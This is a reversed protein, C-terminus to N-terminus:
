VQCLFGKLYESEPIHPVIPHDFSQGLSELIRVDRGSDNVAWSLTRKFTERDMANSCSFTALFGGPRLLKLGLLNIDKYAKTANELHAKTPALKPPDLIIVDFTEGKDRFQRLLSFANDKLFRTNGSVVNNIELNKRALALAHESSDVLTLSRPTKSLANVSFGGSYCFCDLWDLGGPVLEAVKKRNDRQDLFFGTKQGAALSIVFRRSNETIFIEDPASSGALVGEVSPLGERNRMEEDCKEHVGKAHAIELLAKAIKGKARDMGVTLAQLALYDGYRDVILGPLGDGEAHVLRFSDTNGSTAILFRRDCAKKVQNIIWADDAPQAEIFSLLRVRISSEPSYHGYGVFRREIDEVRVMDGSRANGEVRAVAGSFIWPHIGRRNLTKKLHVVPTQM